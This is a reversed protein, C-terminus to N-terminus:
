YQHCINIVNINIVNINIVYLKMKKDDLYFDPFVVAIFKM